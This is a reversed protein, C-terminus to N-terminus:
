LGVRNLKSAHEATLSFHGDPTAPVYCVQKRSPQWTLQGIGM